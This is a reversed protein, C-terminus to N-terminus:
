RIVAKKSEIAGDAENSRMGCRTRRGVAARSVNRRLGSTFALRASAEPTSRTGSTGAPASGSTKKAPRGAASRAAFAHNRHSGTESWTTTPRLLLLM